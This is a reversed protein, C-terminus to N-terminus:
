PRLLGTLGAQEPTAIEINSTARRYNNAVDVRTKTAKTLMSTMPISVNTDENASVMFPMFGLSVQQPGSQSIAVIVPKSVTCSTQDQSIFKAIIEDGNTLKISVIDGMDITKQILM